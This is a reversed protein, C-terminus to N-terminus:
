KKEALTDRWTVKEPSIKGDPDVRLPFVGSKTALFLIAHGPASVLRLDSVTSLNGTKKDVVLDDMVVVDPAHEIESGAAVRVRIGGRDGAAWAVVLKEGLAAASLLGDRPALELVGGLYRQLEIQNVDCKASTCRTEVVTSRWAASSQYSVDVVSVSTGDCTLQGDFYSSSLPKTWKGGINFSLFNNSRGKVRVATTQGSRCGMIHPLENEGGDVEGPEPLEGVDIPDGLKGTKEEIPLAYLRREFNENVGRLIVTDWLVQSSYYFNGVEFKVDVKEHKAEKEGRNRSVLFAEHKEENWGLVFAGGAKSAWGGYSYRTDVLEGTDSRYIGSDGRNGEFVLPFAGADTTGLLRLGHGAKTLSEVLRACEIGEQKLSCIFVPPSITADQVLAFHEEGQHLELSLEKLPFFSPTLPAGKVLDDLSQAEVKGPPGGTTPSAVPTLGIKRAEAFTADLAESVDAMQGNPAKLGKALQDAWYGVDKSDQTTLGADKARELMAQSIPGCRQPWAVNEVSGREKEPLSMAALQHQRFRQSPVVAADLPEGFLCQSLAGFQESTRLKAQRTQYIVVGAIAGGAVLLVALAGFLMKRRKKSYEAGLLETSSPGLEAEKALTVKDVTSADVPARPRDLGRM